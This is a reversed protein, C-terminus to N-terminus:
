SGAPKERISVRYVFGHYAHGQWIIQGIGEDLISPMQEVAGSLTKNDLYALGFAEILPIAKQYNEDLGAGQAVPAVFVRVIYERDQAPLGRSHEHWEAAGVFTFALPCNEPTITAPLEDPATAVGDISAHLDQFAALTTLVSM